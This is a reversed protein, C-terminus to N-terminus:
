HQTAIMGEIVARAGDRSRHRGAIRVFCEHVTRDGPRYEDPDVYFLAPFNCTCSKLDEPDVDVMLATWDWGRRKDRLV